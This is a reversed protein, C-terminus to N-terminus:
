GGFPRQGWSIPTAMGADRLVGTESYSSTWSVVKTPWAVDTLGSGVPVGPDATQRLTADELGLEGRAGPGPARRGRPPRYGGGRGAFKAEQDQCRALPHSIISRREDITTFVKHLSPSLKRNVLIIISRRPHNVIFEYTQNSDTTPDCTSNPFSSANPRSENGVEEAECRGSIFGRTGRAADGVRSEANGPCAQSRRGAGGPRARRMRPLPVGRQQRLRRM